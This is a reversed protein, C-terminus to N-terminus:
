KVTGVVLKKKQFITCVMELFDNKRISDDSSKSVYISSSPKLVIDNTPNAISLNPNTTNTINSETIMDGESRDM